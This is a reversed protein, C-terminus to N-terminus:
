KKVDDNVGKSDTNTMVVIILHVPQPFASVIVKIMIILIIMTMQYFDDFSKALRALQLPAHLNDGGVERWRSWVLNNAWVTHM